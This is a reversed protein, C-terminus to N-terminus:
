NWWAFAGAGALLAAIAMVVAPLMLKNKAFSIVGGIFFGTLALLLIPLWDTM